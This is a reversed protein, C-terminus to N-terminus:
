FYMEKYVVMWGDGDIINYKKIMWEPLQEIIRKDWGDEDLARIAYEGNKEYERNEQMFGDDLMDLAKEMEAFSGAEHPGDIELKGESIDSYDIEYYIFIDM